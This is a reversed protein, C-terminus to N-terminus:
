SQTKADTSDNKGAGADLKERVLDLRSQATKTGRRARPAPPFHGHEAFQRDFADAAPAAQDRAQRDAGPRPSFFDTVLTFWRACCRSFFRKSRGASTKEFRFVAAAIVGRHRRRHAGGVLGAVHRHYLSRADNVPHAAQPHVACPDSRRQLEGDHCLPDSQHGFSLCRQRQAEGGPTCANTWKGVQDREWAGGLDNQCYVVPMANGLTISELTPSVIRVGGIRRLLYYSRLAAHGAPVRKFENAPFYGNCRAACRKTSVM